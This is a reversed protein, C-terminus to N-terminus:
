KFNTLGTTLLHRFERIFRPYKTPEFGAARVMKENKSVGSLWCGLKVLLVVCSLFNCCGPWRRGAVHTAIRRSRQACGRELDSPFNLAETSAWTKPPPTTKATAPM